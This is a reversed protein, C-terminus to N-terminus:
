RYANLHQIHCLQRVKAKVMGYQHLIQNGTFHHIYKIRSKAIRKLIVDRKWGAYKDQHFPEGDCEIVLRFDQLYFDVTMNDFKFERHYRINLEDLLEQM